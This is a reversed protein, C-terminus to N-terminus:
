TAIGADGCEQEVRSLHARALRLQEANMGRPPPDARVAREWSELRARASRLREVLQRRADHDLAATVVAECRSHRAPHGQARRTGSLSGRHARRSSSSLIGWEVFPYRASLDVLDGIDVDDDAGTITVRDLIM